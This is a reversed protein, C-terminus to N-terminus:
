VYKEPNVSVSIIETKEKTKIYFLLVTEFNVEDSHKM